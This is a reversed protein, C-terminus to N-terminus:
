RVEAKVEVGAKLVVDTPLAVMEGEKVGDLVEVRTISSTGTRVVRRELRGGALVYVVTQGNERRMAEKPAVLASEITKSIVSANVNAGAPLARDENVLRCVVEGVQRSGLAVIQSPMKEVRGKWTRGPLADWTFEVAMGVGVRGLEPEDVYVVARLEDLKGVEGLAAGNELVAGAKAELSYVVGALPSVIVTKAVAAKALELSAEADKVRAQAAAIGSRDMTLAVRRNAAAQMEADAVRVRERALEREAKTAADAAVLAELKKARERASAAEVRAKTLAGDAEAIAVPTAGRQAVAVEAKAQALRAEAAVVEARAADSELQGIAQGKRV